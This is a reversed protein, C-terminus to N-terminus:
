LRFLYSFKVFFGDKSRSLDKLAFADPESMTSGYGAFFVTGPTPQWAFLMELRLGNSRQEIAKEYEGTASNFIYIPRETRSDDRLADQYQADYQAIVRGFIARTAQYELKLRPIQRRAM